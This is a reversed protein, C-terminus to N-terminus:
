CSVSIEPDSERFVCTVPKIKVPFVVLGYLVVVPASREVFLWTIHDGSIFVTNVKLGGVVEAPM